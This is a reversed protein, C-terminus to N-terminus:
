QPLLSKQLRSWICTPVCSAFGVIYSHVSQMDNLILPQFHGSGWGGERFSLPSNNKEKPSKAGLGGEAGTSKTVASFISKTCTASQFGGLSINKHFNCPLNASLRSM